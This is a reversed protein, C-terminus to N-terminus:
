RKVPAPTPTYWDWGWFPYPLYSIKWTGGQRVLVARDSNSWGGDFVGSGVHSITIAVFVREQSEIQVAGIDLAVRSLEQQGSMHTSLFYDYTPKANGAALYTYAREYDQKQLALVYNRLIGEPTDEAVYAPSASRVFFLTLAAVVLVGIFILIGLLFRDQKM